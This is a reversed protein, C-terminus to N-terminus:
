RTSVKKSASKVVTPYGSKTATVKVMLKKGRDANIVKHKASRAGAIAKGNRYWQYSLKPSPSWSGAKATLTHGRRATGSITAKGARIWGPRITATASSTRSVNTYTARSGTTKVSIVKGIDATTLTYSSGTAGSIATGSRYWQYTLDVSGPGWTGARATLTKGAMTTGSITPTSATDLLMFLRSWTDKTTTGTASIGVRSQFTKLSAVTTADLTTGSTTTYGAFSLLTKLASVRTGTSGQSLTAMLSTITKPGAQGDVTLSKSSQYSKVAAVTTSDYSGSVKASSVSAALLQQLATVKAGSAGSELVITLPAEDYDTLSYASIISRISAAYATPNPSEVAAIADIYTSTNNMAARVNAYASNTGVISAHDLLSNAASSYSRYKVSNITTCGSSYSSMSSTLLVGSVGALNFKSYRRLGAYYTRKKWYSLTTKVVGYKSGRAEIIRWDGNSLKKTLVAVHGIGNYRAPNNRLFVLDGVKPSGTVKSTASYQAAALDTLTTGARAYLWQTLESCDFATPNANSASAEAGLVYRKGVQKEALHNFGWSTLTATCRTNYYNKASTALSVTGWNTNVIAQAISVSAPIGYSQQATQASTVLSAILSQKAAETVASATPGPNLGFVLAAGLAASILRIARM